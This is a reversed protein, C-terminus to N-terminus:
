RCTLAEGNLECDDPPGYKRWYEILNRGLRKIYGAFRPDRRFPRM